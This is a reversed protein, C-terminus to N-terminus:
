NEAQPKLIEAFQIRVWQATCPSNISGALRRIRFGIIFLQHFCSDTSTNILARFFPSKEEGSDWRWFEITM